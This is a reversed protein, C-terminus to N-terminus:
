KNKDKFIDDLQTMMSQLTAVVKDYDMRKPGVIGIKGYVGENLRYTATVMSCDKMSEVNTEGGIYVQIAHNEDDSEVPEQEIWENLAEKEEFASLLQAANSKDALEPYKLINTAGSTYIELDENETLANGIIELVSDIV